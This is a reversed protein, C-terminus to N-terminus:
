QISDLDIGYVKLLSGKIMELDLVNIKYSLLVGAYTTKIRRLDENVQVLERSTIKGNSYDKLSSAVIQKNIELLESYRQISYRGLEIQRIKDKIKVLLQEKLSADDMEAKKKKYEAELVKAKESPALFPMRFELGIFFENYNMNQIAQSWPNTDTGSYNGNLKFSTTLNLSPLTDDLATKYFLDSNRLLLGSQLVDTGNSVSQLYASEVQNSLTDALFTEVVNLTSININTKLAASITELDYELRAQARRVSIELEQVQSQFRLLDSQSLSGYEFQRKYKTYLSRYDALSEENIKLIALDNLFQHYQLLAGYIMSELAMRSGLDSLKQNNKNIDLIIRGPLYPIGGKLVPQILSLSIYPDYSKKEVNPTSTAFDFSLLSTSKEGGIEFSAITGTSFLKSLGVGLSTGKLGNLLGSPANTSSTYGANVYVEPNYLAGSVTEAQLSALHSYKLSQADYSNRLMIFLFDKENLEYSQSFVSAASLMFVIFYLGKRTM